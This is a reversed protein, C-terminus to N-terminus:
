LVEPHNPHNHKFQPGLALRKLRSFGPSTGCPCFFGGGGGVFFGWCSLAYQPPLPGPWNLPLSFTKAASSPLMLSNRFRSTLAQPEATFRCAGCFLQLGLIVGRLHSVLKRHRTTETESEIRRIIVNDHPQTKLPQRFGTNKERLVGPSLLTLFFSNTSLVHCCPCSAYPKM